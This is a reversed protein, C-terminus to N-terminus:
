FDRPNALGNAGIPGLEPLKFHGKFIESIYGKIPSTCDVSFKIGRPIVIIERPKLTFLGFETTIFHEGEWPVILFDGDSSFFSKNGMSKNASYLYIALGNKLSPDGAGGVSVLGEVFDTPESHVAM